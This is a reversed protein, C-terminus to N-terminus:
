VEILALQWYLKIKYCLNSNEGLFYEAEDLFAFPKFVSVKKVIDQKLFKIYNNM